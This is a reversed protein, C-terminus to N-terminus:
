LVFTPTQFLLSEYTSMIDRQREERSIFRVHLQRMQVNWWNAVLELYMRMVIMELVLVLDVM